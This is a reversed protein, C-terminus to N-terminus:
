AVFGNTGTTRFGPRVRRMANDFANQGANAQQGIQVGYTPPAEEPPQQQMPQQTRGTQGARIQLYYPIGERDAQTPAPPGMEPRQLLEPPEPQTGNQMPPQNNAAARRSADAVGRAVDSAVVRRSLRRAATPNLPPFGRRDRNANEAEVANQVADRGADSVEYDARAQRREDSAAMREARGPENRAQVRALIEEARTNIAETDNPDLDAFGRALEGSGRRAPKGGIQIMSAPGRTAYGERSTGYIRQGREREATVDVVNRSGDPGGYGYQEVYLDRGHQTVQRDGFMTKLKQGVHYKTRDDLTFAPEGSDTKGTPKIGKDQYFKFTEPDGLATDMGSARDQEAMRARSAIARQRAAESSKNGGPKSLIQDIRREGAVTGRGAAVQARDTAAKAEEYDAGIKALNPLNKEFEADQVQRAKTATIREYDIFPDGPTYNRTDKGAVANLAHTVLQQNLKGPIADSGEPEMLPPETIDYAGSSPTSTKPTEKQPAEHKNKADTAIRFLEQRVVDRMNVQENLAKTLLNLNAVATIIDDETLHDICENLDQGFFSSLYNKTIQEINM